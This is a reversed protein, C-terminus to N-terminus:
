SQLSFSPPSGYFYVARGAPEFSFELLSWITKPLLLIVQARQSLARADPGRLFAWANTTKSCHCAELDRPFIIREVPGIMRIPKWEGMSPGESLGWELVEASLM